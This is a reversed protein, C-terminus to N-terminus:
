FNEVSSDYDSRTLTGTKESGTLLAMNVLLVYIKNKIKDSGTVYDRVVSPFYKEGKKNRQRM